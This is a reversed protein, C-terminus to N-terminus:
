SPEDVANGFDPRLLHDERWEMGPLVFALGHGQLAEGRPDASAVGFSGAKVFGLRGALKQSRVNDDSTAIFVEKVGVSNRWWDLVAQAAEFVYGKGEFEKLVGYGLDPYPMEKRTSMVISGIPEAITTPKDDDPNGPENLYISHIMGNPPPALTCFEAKPGFLDHKRRIDEHTKIPPIGTREAEYKTYLKLLTDCDTENKPNLM